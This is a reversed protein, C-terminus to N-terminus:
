SKTSLAGTYQARIEITEVEGRRLPTMLKILASEVTGAQEERKGNRVSKIASVILGVVTAAASLAAAGASIDAPGLFALVVM